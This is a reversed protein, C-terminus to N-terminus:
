GSIKTNKNDAIIRASIAELTKYVGPGFKKVRFNPIIHKEFLGNIFGPDLLDELGLGAEIRYKNENTCILLLLGNQRDEKGIGWDNFLSNTYEEISIGELSDITVVAIEAGTKQELKKILSNIKKIEPLNFIGAFDNVPKTQTDLDITIKEYEDDLRIIIEASYQKSWEPAFVEFFIELPLKGVQNKDLPSFSTVTLISDPDSTSLEYDKFLGGINRIIFNGRRIQGKKLDNFVFYTHEAVPMPRTKEAGSSVQYFGQTSKKGSKKDPYNNKEDMETM